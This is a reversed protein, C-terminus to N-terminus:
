FNIAVDGGGGHLFCCDMSRRMANTTAAASLVAGDHACDGGPVEHGCASAVTRLTVWPIMELSRVMPAAKMRRKKWSLQLSAVRGNQDVRGAAVRLHLLLRDRQAPVRLHVRDLGCHLCHARADDRAGVDQGERRAVGGHDGAAEGGEVHGRAPAVARHGIEEVHELVDRGRDVLERVEDAVEGGLAEVDVVEDGEGARVGEALGAAGLAVAPEVGGDVGGHVGGVGGRELGHAGRRAGAAAVGHEVVVADGGVGVHEAVLVVAVQDGPLHEEHGVLLEGVAGVRRGLHGVVGGVGGQPHLLERRRQHLHAVDLHEGAGGALDPLVRSSARVTSGEQLKLICMWSRLSKENYWGLGHDQMICMWNWSRGYHVDM